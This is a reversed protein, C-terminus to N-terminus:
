SNELIPIRIRSNCHANRIKKNELFERGIKKCDVDVNLNKMNLRGLLLLIYQNVPSLSHELKEDVVELEIKQKRYTRRRM